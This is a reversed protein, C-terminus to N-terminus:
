FYKFNLSKPDNKILIEFIPNPLSGIPKLGIAKLANGTPNNSM